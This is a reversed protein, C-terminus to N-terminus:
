EGCPVVEIPAEQKLLVLIAEQFPPRRIVPEKKVAMGGRQPANVYNNIREQLSKWLNDAGAYAFDELMYGLLTGFNPEGNSSSPVYFRDAGRTYIEMNGEGNVFYGFQRNGSVPHFGDPWSWSFPPSTPM